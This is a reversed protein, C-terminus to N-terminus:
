LAVSGAIMPEQRSDAVEVVVSKVGEVPRM